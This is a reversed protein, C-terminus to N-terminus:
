IDLIDFRSKISDKKKINKPESPIAILEAKFKNASPDFLMGAGVVMKLQGANVDFFLDDARRQTSSIADFTIEGSWTANSNTTHTFNDDGFNPLVNNVTDWWFDYSDDRSLPVTAM